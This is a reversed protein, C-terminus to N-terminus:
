NVKYFIARTNKFTNVLSSISWVFILVSVATIAIPIIPLSEVISMMYTQWYSIVLGSDSIILSLYESLGSIQADKFINITYFVLSFISALSLISGSIMRYITKKTEEKRIRKIISNKLEIKPEIIEFLENKM